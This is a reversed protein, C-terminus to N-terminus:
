KKFIVRIVVPNTVCCDFQNEIELFPRNEFQEYTEFSHFFFRIASDCIHIYGPCTIFILYILDYLVDEGKNIKLVIRKKNEDEIDEVTDVPPKVIPKITIKPSTKELENEVVLTSTTTTIAAIVTMEEDPKKIPKINLKPSLTGEKDVGDPQPKPIPKITIKPQTQQQEQEEESSPRVVPKILVKRPSSAVEKPEETKISLKPSHKKNVNSDDAKLGGIKIKLPSMTEPKVVPKITIRAQRTSRAPLIKPSAAREAVGTVGCKTRIKLKPTAEDGDEVTGTDAQEADCVKLISHMKDSQKTITMKLSGSNASNSSTTTTVEEEPAKIPKITIKPSYPKEKDPVDVNITLQEDLKNDSNSKKHRKPRDNFKNRSEKVDTLSQSSDPLVKEITETAVIIEDTNESVPVPIDSATSVENISIQEVAKNKGDVEEDETDKKVDDEHVQKASVKEEDLAEDAGVSKNNEVENVNESIQDSIVAESQKHSGGANPVKNEAVKGDDAVTENTVNVKIEHLEEVADQIENMKNGINENLNKDHKEVLEVQKEIDATQKDKDLGESETTDMIEESKDTEIDELKKETSMPSEPPTTQQRLEEIDINKKREQDVAVTTEMTDLIEKSQRDEVDKLEKEIMEPQNKPENGDALETHKQDDVVEAVVPEMVEEPKSDEVDKHDKGTVESQEKPNNVDVVEFETAEMVEETKNDELTDLEKETVISQEKPHNVDVVKTKTAKMVDKPKCDEMAEDKKKTVELQKNPNNVESETAELVEDQKSDVADKHEKEIVVLQHKLNNADVVEEVKQDEVVETDTAEMVNLKTDGVDKLQKEFMEVQETPNVDALEKQKQDEVVETETTVIMEETKNDNGDEFEQEILEAQKNSEDLDVVETQKYNDVIELQIAEFVESKCEKVEKQIIEAQKKTQNVDVVETATTDVNDESKSEKVDRFGQELIEVQKKVEVVKLLKTDGIVETATIKMVQESTCVEIAKLEDENMKPQEKPQNVDVIETVMTEIVEESTKNEAAKLEDDVMEHQENPQNGGFVETAPTDVVEESISKQAGKLEDKVLEPQDQNVDVFDTAPAGMNEDLKGVKEFMEPQKMPEKVNDVEKENEVVKTEIPTIAEETKRGEVQKGVFQKKSEKSDHVEEDENGVEEEKAERNDDEITGKMEEEFTKTSSPSLEQKEMDNVNIFQKEKCTESNDIIKGTVGLEEQKETEKIFTTYLVDEEEEQEIQQIDVTISEVAQRLAEMEQKQKDTFSETNADLEVSGLSAVALDTEDQEATTVTDDIDECEM